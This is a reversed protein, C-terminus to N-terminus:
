ENIIETLEGGEFLVSYDDEDLKSTIIDLKTDDDQSVLYISGDVLLDYRNLSLESLGVEGQPELLTDAEVMFDNVTANDYIQLNQSDTTLFNIRESSCESLEFL